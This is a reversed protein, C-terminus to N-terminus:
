ASTSHTRRYTKSLNQCYRTKPLSHTRSAPWPGATAPQRSTGSCFSIGLKFTGKLQQGNRDSSCLFYTNVVIAPGSNTLWLRFEGNNQTYTRKQLTRLLLLLEKSLGWGNLHLTSWSDPSHKAASANCQTIKQLCPDYAVKDVWTHRYQVTWKLSRAPVSSTLAM